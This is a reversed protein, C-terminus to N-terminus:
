ARLSQPEPVVSLDKGPDPVVDETYYGTGHVVVVERGTVPALFVDTVIGRVWMREDTRCWVLDGRQFLTDSV